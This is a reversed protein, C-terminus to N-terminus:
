RPQQQTLCHLTGFGLVLDVSHIGIVDRDPFLDSIINLAVRDNPDNFTPVIVVDNAIYFNAYSAPLRDQGYYIPAPMPLEVVKLKRGLSDTAEKLRALNEVSMQYNEDDNNDESVAVVTGESVFRAIDDIHGHTDDGVCGHSLWITKSIGLYEKFADEYGVKDLGPNRSQIDSLLCEETALLTGKGDTDIAGGELVFPQQNDPRLANVISIESIRSVLDPVKLDAKYNDYKAWANFKWRIWHSSGDSLKVLTPASDRLWSRDTSLIHTRYRNPPVKTRKLLDQIHVVQDHDICLIEVREHQTLVRVIEVYVWDITEFKGPWDEANHPWAIWTAEHPEWEAPMRFLQPTMM